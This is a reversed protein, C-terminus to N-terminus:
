NENRFNEYFCSLAITDMGLCKLGYNKYKHIHNDINKPIHIALKDNKIECEIKNIANIYKEDYFDGPCGLSLSLDYPGILYYNFNFSIIGKLNDIAKKTEIQPIIIPAKNLNFDNCGWFNYRVLGLGRKGLPPFFCNKIIKKCQKKTEITSFIFGDCGSDLCYKITDKSIKPLRVLCIKQSLKVTQICSFLSELNFVGHENDLVVGDLKKSLIESIITSPIQQWSLNM